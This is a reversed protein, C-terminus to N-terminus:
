QGVVWQLTGIMTSADTFFTQNSAGGMEQVIYVSMGSPSTGGWVLDGSSIAAGGQPTFTFCIVEASGSVGGITAQQVNNSCVKADAYQQQLNTLVSQLVAQATQASTVQGGFIDVLNPETSTEELQVENGTSGTKSNAVQWGSPVTLSFTSTTLPQGNPSPPSTPQPAPSPAAQTPEPQTPVAETPGPQTPVAQTPGPQTPVPQTPVAQTPGAQTPAATATGLAVNPQPNSGHNSMLIAIAAVVGLLGIVM